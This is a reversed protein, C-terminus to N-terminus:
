VSPFVLRFIYQVTGNVDNKLSKWLGQQSRGNKIYRLVLGSTNGGAMQLARWLINRAMTVSTKRYNCQPFAKQFAEELKDGGHVYMLSTLGPIMDCVYTLPFPLPRAPRSLPHPTPPSLALSAAALASASITTPPPSPPTFKSGFAHSKELYLQVELDISLCDAETFARDHLLITSDGKKLPIPVGVGQTIWEWSSTSVSLFAIYKTRHLADM